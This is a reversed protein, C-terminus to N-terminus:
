TAAPENVTPMSASLAGYTFPGSLKGTVSLKVTAYLTAAASISRSSLARWNLRSRM